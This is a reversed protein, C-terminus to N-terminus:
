TLRVNEQATTPSFAAILRDIKDGPIWFIQLIAPAVVALRLIAEPVARLDGNNGLSSVAVYGL